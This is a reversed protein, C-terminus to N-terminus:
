NLTFVRAIFEPAPILCSRKIGWFRYRNRAIYSYLADRVVRPILYLCWSLAWFGGMTRGIEIVADSYMYLKGKHIYMVSVMERNDIGFPQLLVRATESQFPVFFINNSRDNRYVLAVSSNCMNCVGDFLMIPKSETLSM